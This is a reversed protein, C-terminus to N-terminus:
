GSGEPPFVEDLAADDSVPGGDVDVDGGDVADAADDTRTHDGPGPLGVDSIDRDEDTRRDDIPDDARGPTDTM